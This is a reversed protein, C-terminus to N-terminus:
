PSRRKPQGRAVVSASSILPPPSRHSRRAEHRRAGVDRVSVFNIPNTADGFVAARVITFGLGSAELREEAAFKARHV